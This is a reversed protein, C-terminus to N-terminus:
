HKTNKLSLYFTWNFFVTYVVIKFYLQIYIRYVYEM